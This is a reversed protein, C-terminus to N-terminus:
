LQIRKSFVSLLIQLTPSAEIIELVKMKFWADFLHHFLIFGHFLSQEKTYRRQPFTREFGKVVKDSPQRKDNMQSLDRMLTQCPSEALCRHLFSQMNASLQLITM